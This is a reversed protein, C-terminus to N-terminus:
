PIIIKYFTPTPSGEFLATVKKGAEAHIPSSHMAAFSEKSAMEVIAAYTGGTEPELLSRRIFGPFKGFEANSWRFWAKFAEDQGAKIKPFQVISVFM